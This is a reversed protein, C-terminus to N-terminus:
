VASFYGNAYTNLSGGGPWSAAAIGPSSVSGGIGIFGKNIPANGWARIQSNYFSATGATVHIGQSPSSGRASGLQLVGGGVEFNGGQILLGRASISGGSARVTCDNFVNFIDASQGSGSVDLIWTGPVYFDCQVLLANYGAATQSGTLSWTGNIDVTCGTAQFGNVGTTTLSVGSALFINCNRASMGRGFDNIAPTTSHNVCTYGCGIQLNSDAYQNAGNVRFSGSGSFKINCGNVYLNGPLVFNNNLVFEVDVSQMRWNSSEINVTSGPGTAVITFLYIETSGNFFGNASAYKTRLATFCDTFNKFAGGATTGDGSTTKGYDVYLTIGADATVEPTITLGDPIYYEWYIPNTPPTGTPVDQLARYLRGDTYLTLSRDKYTTLPSYPPIGYVESAQAVSSLQWLYQNWASSDGISGYLQGAQPVRDPVAVNRYSIGKVPPVPISTQASEAWIVPLSAGRSPVAM